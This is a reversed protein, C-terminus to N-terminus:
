ETGSVLNIQIMNEISGDRASVTYVDLTLDEGDQVTGPVEIIESFYGWDGMSGTTFGSVIEVGEQDLLRYNVNGEFVNAIGEMAFQDSIVMGPAPAFLKIWTSEAVIPPLEDIGTLTPVFEEAGEVIYRVPLDRADIIVLDYPRTPVLTVPDDPGPETFHVTVIIEDGVRRVQTINVSYGSTPQVGYTVLLYMLSDHVKEQAIWMNRSDEIWASVADPLVLVEVEPIMETTTIRVTRTAGDWEVRAKLSESVFRAPIMTRSNVIRPPVDLQYIEGQVSATLDDITLIITTDDKIATVTRTESNWELSAGLATFVARMEVLTRGAEIIPPVEPELQIGDVIIQVPETQQALTTSVPLLSLILVLGVCILKVHNKM